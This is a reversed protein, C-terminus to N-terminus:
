ELWRGIEGYLLAGAKKLKKMITVHSVRRAKAIHRITKGEIFLTLIVKLDPPLRDLGGQNVFRTLVQKNYLTELSIRPDAIENMNLMIDALPAHTDQKMCQPTEM